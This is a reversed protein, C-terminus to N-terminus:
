LVWEMNWSTLCSIEVYNCDNVGVYRWTLSNMINGSGCSKLAEDYM